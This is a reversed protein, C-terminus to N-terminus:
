EVQIEQILDVPVAVAKFELKLPGPHSPQYEFDYTEGPSITLNADQVIAQSPPLDAGDKAQARWQEPRDKGTFSLRGVMASSINILRVRYSHGVHWQLIGPQSSGNLLGSIPIQTNLSRIGGWGSIVFVQEVSPDFKAGPDVVVLAGYLGGSLQIEDDLHTHYIFTGARPPTFRACFSQGPAITPTLDHGRMGWGAVGDYYSELEMGHWHVATPESLQNVVTIEVPRGRELVLTPGPLSVQNPLLKHSEELQYGFGPAVGNIAPRERVLLRLRRARGHTAVHPREGPVDIGLVLGAMHNAADHEHIMEHEPSLAVAVTRSPAVHAMLHCHFIWRGPVATWSATMSSGPTLLETVTMRQEASSFIRDRAGDGVSDVRYYSGHMHMPHNVDSANLMRWRVEEGAAYSLKETYPWSKGNIVAVDKSLTPATESRWIGLVFVRDKVLKGPPDVIFAGSLQSDERFPRPRTTPGGASAYYQYTGQEGALFHVERTEGPAVEIVDKADGPHQHMGHIIATAALANHFSVHIDTGQPVRVLPGPIQPSKGEEAFAAVKMSPGNDAEPYWDGSTVELRLILVGNKLEGAPVRNDNARIAVSATAPQASISAIPVGCVLILFSIKLTFSVSTLQM